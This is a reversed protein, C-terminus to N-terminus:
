EWAQTPLRASRAAPDRGQQWDDGAVEVRPLAQRLTARDPAVVQAWKRAVLLEAEVSPSHGGVFAGAGARHARLVLVDRVHPYPARPEKHLDDGDDWCVVLGLDAVPAWAASRTGVVCRVQGRRLALWQRYRRAPGLDASLTVHHGPGLAASLAVDVRAVDRADPVVVVVGRGNHLTAQAATAVEAPWGPGPLARWVARPSDGRALAAVLSAGGAYASWGGVEPPPPAPLPAGTPEAEVRAHRPPVALRVVDSFTGAWRDAVARALGAIEASLVPEPSVSRALPTLRGTHETSDVRELVWGDVLRGSFRVRVRSGVVADAALAPPVAYDFARDLHPLPSDVAVRAIPLAPAAAEDHASTTM